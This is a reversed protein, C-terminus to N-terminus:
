NTCLSTTKTNNGKVRVAAAPKQLLRSSSFFSHLVSSSNRGLSACFSPAPLGLGSYTWTRCLQSPARRREMFQYLLGQCQTWLCVAMRPDVLHLPLNQLTSISKYPLSFATLQTQVLKLTSTQTKILFWPGFFFVKRHHYKKLRELPCCNNCESVYHHTDLVPGTWRPRSSSVACIVKVPNTQSCWSWRNWDDTGRKQRYDYKNSQKGM